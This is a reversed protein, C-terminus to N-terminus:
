MPSLCLFDFDFDKTLYFVGPESYSDNFFHIANVGYEYRLELGSIKMMPIGCCEETDFKYAWQIQADTGIKFLVPFTNKQGQKFGIKGNPCNLYEYEGKKPPSFDVKEGTCPGASLGCVSDAGPLSISNILRYLGFLSLGIIAAILGTKLGPHMATFM